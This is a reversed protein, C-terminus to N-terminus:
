MLSLTEALYQERCKARQLKGSSTKPLTGPAVLMVDRPPLGVVQVCRDHVAHRLVDLQGAAAKAEAVVVLTEKGKYGEVGFAIVNGARVGDIEGAAREIDMPYVNRGGVIIVDKIRGCMALEGDITYALDGTRLWGDHFVEASLEPRGYYGPTVSTGRLELEGVQREALVTGSAPDCIRMELGPVPFGLRPIHRARADDAGDADDAPGADIVDGKTELVFRDVVDVVMGRGPPPFTGGIAVEAMGFACFVAGPKFGFRGAEAVFAEVADPDIPEAGSLAVRMSSLDLGSMRKLARTALVWAFNPGATATGGFESIWEMWHGPHAMFDQPAAQVHNLGLTMPLALLGVLGMDHYLPLWSITVDRDPAVDAATAIADLNAGLVRDPIMVGKPESTSGSTYQLIVLRESDPPALLADDARRAGPRGPMLAGLPATPPDGPVVDYFPALADDILVLVADGQRIRGRTQNVFEELSGMRMPLPLVMSAAGALWCGQIATVLARSTPALIAVHDGPAVGRAQLSAAAVLAEDHLQRWSVVDIEGGNVFRVSASGEAAHCLRDTIPTPHPSV